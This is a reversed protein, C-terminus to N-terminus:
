SLRYVRQANDRGIMTAVRVADAASWEGDDVRAALVRHIARRWLLAGLHHLEALGWADSSYLIKSFPALELAEAVISAAAAGVYPVALGVDFYVHPYAHALFGAHRQFPYCHLLLLPTGIPEVLEIFDTLLLPDARHLRLDPDGFGTHIQLPLRRDVGAWIIHRLLVSDSLRVPEGKAIGRLWTGAAATVERHTPRTPDVDLGHRYALVTKLGVATASRRALLGAFKDIFEGAAIGAGALEEALSELRVVERAPVSSAKTMQAPSLLREGQYGTEVLFAGVGAARLFRRNVEAAGLARRRAVYDAPAAHPELDLVPACWRRVAFGLASDFSTTGAPAPRDSESIAGEFESRTLDGSLPGHVHHDVLALGELALQLDTVSM